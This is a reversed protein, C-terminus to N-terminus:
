PYRTPSPSGGPSQARPPVAPRVPRRPRALRAVTRLGTPLRRTPGRRASVVMTALLAVGSIAALVVVVPFVFSLGVCILFISGIPVAIVVHPSVNRIIWRGSALWRRQRWQASTFLGFAGIIGFVIAVVM